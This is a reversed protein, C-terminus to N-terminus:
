RGALLPAHGSITLGYGELGPLPRPHDTLVRINRLGLDVLIQAGVGFDRMQEDSARQQHQHYAPHALHVIVGRDAEAIAETAADLRARCDCARSGFVDGQWCSLHIYVLVDGDGGIDGRVLAMHENADVSSLYGHARYTGTTTAITAEAVHQVLRDHRRRYAIVDGITLLPLEHRRAFAHLQAGQMASGDENVLEGVVAALAQGGSMHVLDLSAETHGARALVGGPRGRLPMVHGGMRIAERGQAPDIAVAITQARDAVAVSPGVDHATITQTLPAHELSDDRAAVLDLGLEECREDSLALYTWGTALRGLAHLRDPTAHEAALVVMGLNDDLDSDLLVAYGGAALASLASPVRTSDAGAEAISM